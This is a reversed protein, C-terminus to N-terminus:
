QTQESRGASPSSCIPPEEGVDGIGPDHRLIAAPAYSGELQNHWHNPLRHIDKHLAQLAVLETPSSTARPSSSSIATAAPARM